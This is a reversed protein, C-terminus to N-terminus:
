MRPGKVRGTLPPQSNGLRYLPLRERVQMERPQGSHYVIRVTIEGFGRVAEAEMQLAEMLDIWHQDLAM